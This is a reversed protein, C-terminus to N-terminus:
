KFLSRFIYQFTDLVYLIEQFSKVHLLSFIKTPRLYFEKYAKKWYIEVEKPNLNFIKYMSKGGYYSLKSWDRYLFRGQNEILRYLETDPLPTTIAFQAIKPDLEKAFEITDQMTEATDYPFGFQFFVKLVMGVSKINEASERVVRLDQNRKIKDVVEQNGSEAGIAVLYCGARKMKRLLEPRADEARIGNDCKWAIGIKKGIILDCIKEARKTDLAFADDHISLERAGFSDILYEIEEVVNEPRRTRFKSGFISKNCYICQHPCGRSTLIPVDPRDRCYSKYKRLNPFLSWDPFPIKDIDLIPPQPVFVAGDDKKLAIGAKGYITRKDHFATIKQKKELYSVLSKFSNEGEGVIVYDSFQLLEDYITCLPGGLVIKGNFKEGRLKRCIAKATFFNGVTLYIGVLDPNKELIWEVTKEVSLSFLHADIVNVDQNMSGAISAIYALGMPPYTELCKSDPNPNVLTIRM